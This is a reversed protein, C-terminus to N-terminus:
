YAGFNQFYKLLMLKRVGFEEQYCRSPGFSFLNGIVAFIVHDHVQFLSNGGFRINGNEGSSSTGGQFPGGFKSGYASNNDVIGRGPAHIGAFFQHHRFDIGLFEGCAIFDNGVGIARGYLHDQSQLRQALAVADFANHDGGVLGHGTCAFGCHILHHGFAFSFCGLHHIWVFNVEVDKRM